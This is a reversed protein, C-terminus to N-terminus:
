IHILNGIGGMHDFVHTIVGPLLGGTRILHNEVTRHIVLPDSKSILNMPVYSKSILNMPVYINIIAPISSNILKSRKSLYIDPDLSEDM